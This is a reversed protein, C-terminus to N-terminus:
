LITLVRPLRISNHSIPHRRPNECLMTSVARDTRRVPTKGAPSSAIRNARIRSPSPPTEQLGIAGGRVSKASEAPQQAQPARQARREGQRRGLVPRLLRSATKGHANFGPRGLADFLQLAEDDGSHAATLDGGLDADGSIGDDAFDV